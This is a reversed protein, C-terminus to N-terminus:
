IGGTNLTAHHLDLLEGTTLTRRLERARRRVVPLLSRVAAEDAAVSAARLAAGLAAAGSKSGVAFPERRRGVIEPAFPEYTRADKLLGACHLGTEHRFAAAGVVPREPAIPRGAARAVLASLLALKETRVGCDVGHAVRLAMVVQELAANGAREGLGNVTVSAATAGAEFAALTNATALGLDDHAHVELDLGPVSARLEGIERLLRAPHAIGVTDALRLRRAPTRAVAAAFEQLFAFEARSADQAGVSVFQFRAAAKATLRRLERLVWRRDKGWAGLHLDSVPFSIHVRTAGSAGAADLDGSTARCWALVREAGVASIVARLDEQAEAGAAPIGAELEPVGAAVLERAIAVKGERTFVVGAAQEGDRLTTDILHLRRTTM